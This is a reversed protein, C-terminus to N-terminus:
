GAAQDQGAVRDAVRDAVREGLLSIAPRTMKVKWRGWTADVIKGGV